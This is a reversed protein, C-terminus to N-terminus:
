CRVERSRKVQLSYANGMEPEKEELRDLLVFRIFTNNELVLSGKVEKGTFQLCTGNWAVERWFWPSSYVAIPNTIYQTTLSDASYM